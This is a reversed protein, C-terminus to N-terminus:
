TLLLKEEGSLKVEIIKQRNNGKLEEKVKRNFHIYGAAILEFLCSSRLLESYDLQRSM